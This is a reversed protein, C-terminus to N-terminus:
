RPTFHAQIYICLSHSTIEQKIGGVDGIDCEMSDSQSPNAHVQEYTSREGNVLQFM